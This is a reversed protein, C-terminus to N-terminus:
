ADPYAKWCHTVCVNDSGDIKVKTHWEYVIAPQKTKCCSQQLIWLYQERAFTNPESRRRFIAFLIGTVFGSVGIDDKPANWCTCVSANSMYLVSFVLWSIVLIKQLNASVATRRKKGTLHMM